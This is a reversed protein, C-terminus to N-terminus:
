CGSFLFSFYLLGVGVCGMQVSNWWRMGIRSLFTSPHRHSRSRLKTMLVYISSWTWFTAMALIVWFYMIIIIGLFIVGFKCYCCEFVLQWVARCILVVILVATACSVYGYRMLFFLFFRKWSAFPFENKTWM